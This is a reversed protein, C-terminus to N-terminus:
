SPELSLLAAGLAITDSESLVVGGGYSETYFQLSVEGWEPRPEVVMRYRNGLIVIRKEDDSEM